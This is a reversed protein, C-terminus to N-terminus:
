RLPKSLVVLAVSRWRTCVRAWHTALSERHSTAERAVRVWELLCYWLIHTCMCTHMYTLHYRLSIKKERETFSVIVRFLKSVLFQGNQNNSCFQHTAYVYSHSSKFFSLNLIKILILSISWHLLRGTAATHCSSGVDIHHTDTDAHAIVLMGTYIYVCKCLLLQM